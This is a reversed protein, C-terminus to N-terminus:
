YNTEDDFRVRSLQKNTNKDSANFSRDRQQSNGFNSVYKMEPRKNNKADFSQQHNGRFTDTDSEGIKKNM